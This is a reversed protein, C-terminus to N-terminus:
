GYPGRPRRPVGVTSRRPMQAQLYLLCSHSGDRRCLGGKQRSPRCPARQIREPLQDTVWEDLWCIVPNRVNVWDDVLALVTERGGDMLLMEYVFRIEAYQLFRDHTRGSSALGRVEEILSRESGIAIVEGYAQCQKDFIPLATDLELREDNM